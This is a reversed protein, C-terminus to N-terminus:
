GPLKRSRVAVATPAAGADRAVGRAPREGM